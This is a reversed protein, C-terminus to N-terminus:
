LVTSPTLKWGRSRGTPGTSTLSTLPASSRATHPLSSRATMWAGMCACVCVRVCGEMGGGGGWACVGPLRCRAAQAPPPAAPHSALRLAVCGPGGRAPSRATGRPAAAPPSPSPPAPSPQPPRLARTRPPHVSSSRPRLLWEGQTVWRQGEVWGGVRHGQLHGGKGGLALHGVVRPLGHQEFHLHQAHPARATLSRRPSKDALLSGALLRGEGRRPRGKQCASSQESRVDCDRTVAASDHQQHM